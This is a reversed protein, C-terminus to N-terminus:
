HFPLPLITSPCHCSLICHCPRVTPQLGRPRVAAAPQRRRFLSPFVATLQWPFPLSIHLFPTSPLPFPLPLHPFPLSIRLFPLSLVRSHQQSNGIFRCSCLQPLVQPSHACPSSRCWAFGSYLCACHTSSVSSLLPSSLLYFFHPFRLSYRTM